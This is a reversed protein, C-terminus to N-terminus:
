VEKRNNWFDMSVSRFFFQTINPHTFITVIRFVFCYTGSVTFPSSTAFSCTRLFYKDRVLFCWMIELFFFYCLFYLVRNELCLCYRRWHISLLLFLRFLMMSFWFPFIWLSDQSVRLIIDSSIEKPFILQRRKKLICILMILYFIM